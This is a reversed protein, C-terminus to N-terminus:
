LLTVMYLWYIYSSVEVADRRLSTFLWIVTLFCKVGMGPCSHLLRSSGTNSLGYTLVARQHSHCKVCDSHFEPQCEYRHGAIGNRQSCGLSICACPRLSTQTASASNTVATSVSLGSAGRGSAHTCPNPRSVVALIFPCCSRPLYILKILLSHFLAM